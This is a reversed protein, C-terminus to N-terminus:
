ANNEGNWIDHALAFLCAAVVVWLFGILGGIGYAANMTHHWESHVASNGTIMVRHRIRHQWGHVLAYAGVALTFPGATGVFVAILRNM